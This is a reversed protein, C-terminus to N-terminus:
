ATPMRGRTGPVTLTTLSHRVEVERREVVDREDLLMTSQDWGVDEAEMDEQDLLSDIAGPTQAAANNSAQLLRGLGEDSDTVAGGAYGSSKVHALSRQVERYVMVAAAARDETLASSAPLAPLTAGGPVPDVISDASWRADAVSGNSRANGDPGHLPSMGEGPLTPGMLGGIKGLAEKLRGSEREARKLAILQHLREEAVARIRLAMSPHRLLVLDLDTKSLSYLICPTTTRITATRKLRGFLLAIEGFFLGPTLKARVAKGTIVEVTGNAIFYMEEGCTDEEIVVDGALFHNVKLVTVVSSIFADGADRFFPVKLILFKCNHMSIQMRLPANLEQLIKAEDFLKGKSYKYEFYSLIRNRLGQDLDKYSIYQQVEDIKEKYMRGSSDLGTMVTTVNGVLLALFVAGASLMEAASGYFGMTYRDFANDIAVEDLLVNTYNRVCASFHWYLVMMFVIGLTRMVNSNLNLSTRLNKFMHSLWTEGFIVTKAVAGFNLLCLLRVYYSLVDAAFWGGLYRRAIVGHHMTVQSGVVTGTRFSLVTDIVWWPLLAWTAYLVTPSAESFSLGIPLVLCQLVFTAYLFTNWGRQFISEPHVTFTALTPKMFVRTSALAVDRLNKTSGSPLKKMSFGVGERRQEKKMLQTAIDELTSSPVLVKDNYFHVYWPPPGHEVPVWQERKAAEAARQQQLAETSDDADDADGEDEVDVTVAGPGAAGGEEIKSPSPPALTIHSGHRVSKKASGLRSATTRISSASRGRAIRTDVKLLAGGDDDSAAAQAAKVASAEIAARARAKAIVSARQISNADPVVLNATIAPPRVFRTIQESSIARNLPNAADAQQQSLSAATTLSTVSKSSSRREDVKAMPPVSSDVSAIRDRRTADSTGLFISHASNRPSLENFGTYPAATSATTNGRSVGGGGRAGVGGRQGGGRNNAPQAATAVARLDDHLSQYLQQQSLILQELNQLRTVIAESDM